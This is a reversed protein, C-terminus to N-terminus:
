EARLIDAPSIGAARWAPVFCAVGAVTVLVAIAFTFTVIDTPEIGYLFRSVLRGLWSAGVIGVMLGVVM